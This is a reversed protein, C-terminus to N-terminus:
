FGERPRLVSNPFKGGRWFKLKPGYSMKEVVLKWDWGVFTTRISWVSWKPKRGFNETILYFTVLIVFIPPVGM